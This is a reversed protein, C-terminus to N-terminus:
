YIVCVFSKFTKRKLFCEKFKPSKICSRWDKIFNMAAATESLNWISRCKAKCEVLLLRFWCNSTRINTIDTRNALIDGEMAVQAIFLFWSLMQAYLWNKIFQTWSLSFQLSRKRSRKYLMELLFRRPAIENPSSHKGLRRKLIGCIHSETTFISKVALRICEKWDKLVDLIKALAM